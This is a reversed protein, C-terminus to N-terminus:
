FARLRTVPNDDEVITDEPITLGDTIAGRRMTKREFFLKLCNIM